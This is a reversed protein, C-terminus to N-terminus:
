IWLGPACRRTIRRLLTKSRYALSGYGANSYGSFGVYLPQTTFRPVLDINGNMWQQMLQAFFEIELVFASGFKGRLFKQYAPLTFSFFRLDMWKNGGLSGGIWPVDRMDCYIDYTHPASAILQSINSVILRGTVKWFKKTESREPQSALANDLMFFEGYGKGNEAPYDPNTSVLRIKKQSGCQRAINRFPTLDTGSNELFIIEDIHVDDVGLYFRFAEQYDQMRLEPDRRATGPMLKPPVITATMVLAAPLRLDSRGRTDLHLDM